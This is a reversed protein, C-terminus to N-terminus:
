SRSQRERVAAEAAACMASMSGAVDVAVVDGEGVPPELAAYQSDLLAPPMYHGRREGMRERIVAPPGDLFLFLTHFGLERYRERHARRLASNAMVCSRGAQRNADLHRCLAAIWPERMADTLPNGAAMRARNQPPHFDDGEVFHFDFRAALHRAVTTKGSGSVGCCIVLLPPRAGAHENVM